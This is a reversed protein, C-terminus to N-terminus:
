GRRLVAVRTGGASAGGVGGACEGVALGSIVM